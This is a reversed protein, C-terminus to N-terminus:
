VNRIAGGQWTQTNQTLTQAGGQLVVVAGFQEAELVAEDHLDELGSGGAPLM